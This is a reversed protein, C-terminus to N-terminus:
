VVTEKEAVGVNVHPVPGTLENTIVSVAFTVLEVRDLQAPPSIMLKRM